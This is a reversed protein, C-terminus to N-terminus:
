CGGEMHILGHKDMKFKWYPPVLCTSGKDAIIAPGEKIFGAPIEDRSFIEADYSGSPFICEKKSSNLDGGATDFPIERVVQGKNVELHVRVVEPLLASM